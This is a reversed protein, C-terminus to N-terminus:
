LIFAGAVPDTFGPRAVFDFYYDLFFKQFFRTKKFFFFVDHDPTQSFVEFLSNEVILRPM